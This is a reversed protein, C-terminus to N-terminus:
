CGNFFVKKEKGLLKETFNQFGITNEYENIEKSAVDSRAAVLLYTDGSAIIQTHNLLNAPRMYTLDSTFQNIQEYKKNDNAREQKNAGVLLQLM